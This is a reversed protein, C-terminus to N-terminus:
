DLYSSTSDLLEHYDNAYSRLAEMERIMGLDRPHVFLAQLMM